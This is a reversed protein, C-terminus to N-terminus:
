AKGARSQRAREGGKEMGPNESPHESKEAIRDSVVIILLSLLFLFHVGVLWALRSNNFDEPDLIAKLVEISTIAVISAMLKHKLGGFDIKAMWAPRDTSEVDIRSVFNEYGSFIVILLLNGAFSLDVLSLIALIVEPEDMGGIGTAFRWFEVCFHYLLLALALILGVYFPAMLWRSQFIFTELGLEIKKSEVGQKM